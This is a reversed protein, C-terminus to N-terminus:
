EQIRLKVKASLCVEIKNTTFISAKNDGNMQTALNIKLILLDNLLITEIGQRDLDITLREQFPEITKGEADVKAGNVQLDEIINTEIGARYSLLEIETDFPLDNRYDLILQIAEIEEPRKERIPESSLTDRLALLSTKFKLPLDIDRDRICM